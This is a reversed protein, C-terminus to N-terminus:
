TEEETPNLAAWVRHPSAPMQLRRAAEPGIADCVANMVAALAGVTGSEGAGKVGLPNATTPTPTHLVEIRCLDTARPVAYDMLSGTLLAADADHVIREMLAQGLGQAVGGHVQGEVLLPNIVTGVDDAVTYAALQVTGTDPDVDVEAVHAGNPFTGAETAVFAEATFTRGTRATVEALPIARDTGAVRFAGQAFVLDRAAVELLDAAEPRAAELIQASGAQMAAGVSGMTRSGFTGTGRAIEGTDGGRVTVPGRWGLLREAIQAFATAHGQGADGAGTRIELGEPGAILQAYEPLQAGKPGGGAPEIACAIGLGRLRGRARAAERRAAFGAADAGALAARLATPFDGSDYTFGHPTAWPMQDPGIMNRLRLAVPDRGTEAAALEVMREIVYIAEPRGAGRYPAMHMANVHVGRMVAHIVPTRYVGVLGPLNSTMPHGSMQGMQAGIPAYGDVQLALFTGDADLALAADVSQERSATDALFGESRTGQWRVPRGTARAALLALADEPFAGNRMGFSGGTDTKRVRIRDLPLDLVHALEGQVRHPAQTGTWLTMHGEPSCTALAGRPELTMAAVRSIEIRARTVHAAWAAAAEFADRDGLEYTFAINSDRDPWVRPAEPAAGARADTVVPAEAVELAVADAADSAQGATEAVVVAVPEGVWTVRDTAMPLFPTPVVDCGKPVYRLPFPRLGAQDAGSLVCVVGPMARAANLDLATIRGAPYPSRVVEMWLADEAPVDAVFCGAGRVLRGDEDRTQATGFRTEPRAM